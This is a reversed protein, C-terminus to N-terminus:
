LGLVRSRDTYRKATEVEDDPVEGDVSFTTDDADSFLEDCVVEEADDADQDDEVEVLWNRIETTQVEFWKSM